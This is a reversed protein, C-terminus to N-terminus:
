KKNVELMNNLIDSNINKSTGSVKSTKEHVDALMKKISM